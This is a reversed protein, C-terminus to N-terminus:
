PLAEFDDADGALAAAFRAPGLAHEVGDILVLDVVTHQEALLVLLARHLLLEANLTVRRQHQEVAVARDEPAAVGIAERLKLRNQLSIQATRALTATVSRTVLGFM